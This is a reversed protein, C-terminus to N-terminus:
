SSYFSLSHTPSLPLLKSKSQLIVETAQVELKKRESLWLSFGSREKAKKGVPDHADYPDYGVRLSCPVCGFLVGLRQGPARLGAGGRGTVCEVRAGFSEDCRHLLQSLRRRM